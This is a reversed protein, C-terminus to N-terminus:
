QREGPSCESLGNQHNAEGLGLHRSHAMEFAHPCHYHYHYHISSPGSQSPCINREMIIKLSYVIDISCLNPSVVSTIKGM